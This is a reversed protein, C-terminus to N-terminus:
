IIKGSKSGADRNDEDSSSSVVFKDNRSALTSSETSSLSSKRRRAKSLSTTGRNKGHSNNMLRKKSIGDACYDMTSTDSKEEVEKLSPTSKRVESLTRSQAAAAAAAHRKESGFASSSRSAAAPPAPVLPKYSYQSKPAMLQSGTSEAWKSSLISYHKAWSSKRSMRGNTNGTNSYSSSDAMSFRNDILNRSTSSISLNDVQNNAPSLFKLKVREYEDSLLENYSKRTSSLYQNNNNSSVTPSDVRYRSSFTQSSPSRSCKKYQSFNEYCIKM